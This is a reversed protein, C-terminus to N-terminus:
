TVAPPPVTSGAVGMLVSILPIAVTVLQVRPALGPVFLMLAAAEPRAPGGATKLAVPTALAVMVPVIVTVLLRIARALDGVVAADDAM